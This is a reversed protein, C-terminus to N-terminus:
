GHVSHSVSSRSFVLGLPDKSDKSFSWAVGIQSRQDYIGAM